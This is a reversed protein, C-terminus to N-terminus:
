NIKAGAGYSVMSTPGVCYHMMVEGPLIVFYSTYTDSGIVESIQFMNKVTPTEAFNSATGTGEGSAGNYKYYYSVNGGSAPLTYSGVGTEGSTTIDLFRYTGAVSSQTVHTAPYKLGLVFGGGVGQDFMMMKGPYITGVYDTAAETFIVRSPDTSSVAWTGTGAGSFQVNDDFDEVYNPGFNYTFTGNSLLEFGGWDSSDAFDQYVLYLYKGAMDALTYNTSLNLESSIGFCLENQANGSPASTVMVKDALEVVYYTNGNSSIEYVGNLSSNASMTYSGSGTAGTTENVYSYTHNAEDLTYRIVDGYSGTALYKHEIPTIVNNNNNDDNDDDDKKCSVVLTLFVLSMLSLILFHKKM